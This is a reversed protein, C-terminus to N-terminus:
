CLIRDTKPRILLGGESRWGFVPLIKLAKLLVKRALFIRMSNVSLATSGRLHTQRKVSLVWFTDPLFGMRTRGGTKKKLLFERCAFRKLQRLLKGLLEKRLSKVRIM